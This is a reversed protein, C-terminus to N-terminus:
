VKGTFHDNFTFIFAKNYLFNMCKIVLKNKDIIYSTALTVAPPGPPMTIIFDISLKNLCSFDAGFPANNVEHCILEVLIAYEHIFKM